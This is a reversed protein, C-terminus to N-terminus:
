RGQSATAPVALRGPLTPWRAAKEVYERRLWDVDALQDFRRPSEHATGRGDTWHGDRPRKSRDGPVYMNKHRGSTTKVRGVRRLVDRKRLGALALGGNVRCGCWTAAFEDVYM